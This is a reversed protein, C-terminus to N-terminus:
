RNLVERWEQAEADDMESGVIFWPVACDHDAEGYGVPFPCV